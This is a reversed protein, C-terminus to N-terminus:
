FYLDNGRKEFLRVFGSSLGLKTELQAATTIYAGIGGIITNPTLTRQGFVFNKITQIM